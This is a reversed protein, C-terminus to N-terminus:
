HIDFKRQGLKSKPLETPREYENLRQRFDELAEQWVETLGQRWHKMTWQQSEINVPPNQSEDKFVYKCIIDGSPEQSQLFRIRKDDLSIM